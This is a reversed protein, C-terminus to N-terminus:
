VITEGLNHPTDQKIEIKYKAGKSIMIQTKKLNIQKNKNCQFLLFHM